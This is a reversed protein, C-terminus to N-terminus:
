DPDQYGSNSPVAEGHQVLYQATARLCTPLILSGPAYESPLYLISKGCLRVLSQLDEGKLTDKKLIPQMIQIALDSMSRKHSARRAESPRVIVTSANGSAHSSAASPQRLFTRSFWGSIKQQSHRHEPSQNMSSYALPTPILPRIGHKGALRNYEAVFGSRDQVEDSDSLNALDCGGGGGGDSSSTWTASSRNGIGRARSHTGYWMGARGSSSISPYLPHDSPLPPQNLQQSPERRSEPTKLRAASSPTARSGRAGQGRGTSNEMERTSLSTMYQGDLGGPPYSPM